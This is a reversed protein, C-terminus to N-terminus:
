LTYTHVVSNIFQITTEIFTLRSVYKYVKEIHNNRTHVKKAKQAKFNERQKPVLFAKTKDLVDVLLDRFDILEM